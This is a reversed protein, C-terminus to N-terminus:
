EADTLNYRLSFHQAQVHPSREVKHTMEHFSLLWVPDSPPPAPAHAVTGDYSIVSCVTKEHFAIGKNRGTEEHDQAGYLRSCVYLVLLIVHALANILRHQTSCLLM